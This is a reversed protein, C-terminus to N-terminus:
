GFLLRNLNSSGLYMAKGQFRFLLHNRNSSSPVTVFPNKVQCSALFPKRKRTLIKPNVRIPALKETQLQLFKHNENAGNQDEPVVRLRL